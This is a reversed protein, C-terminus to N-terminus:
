GATATARRGAAHTRIVQELVGAARSLDVDRRRALQITRVLGPAALRTARFQPGVVTSPVVAVGIGAAVFGLVADMEGGEVAFTPVFGHDRCAALTTERLDYGARFMVLPTRQLEEIRMRARRSPAPRARSSVVVLEEVFLPDATLRPDDHARSDVILALDLAGSALQEQLDRSGGESLVIAVGPHAAHFEGIIAPMLGTCLSPTAGVRVQGRQLGDLERLARRANEAELLMRRAIPLLEAGAATPEVHGPRRHLLVAGLSRELARIQQSLTPQTVELREAARTFHGADAVAVFYALQQLQM